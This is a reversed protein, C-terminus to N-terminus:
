LNLLFWKYHQFILAQIQNNYNKQSNYAARSEVNVFGLFVAGLADATGIGLGACSITGIAMTGASMFLFMRVKQPGSIQQLSMSTLDYM